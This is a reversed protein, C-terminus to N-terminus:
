LRIFRTFIKLVIVTSFFMYPIAFIKGSVSQPTIDGYGVACSTVVAFYFSDVWTMDGERANAKFFVAGVTATMLFQFLLLAYRGHVTKFFANFPDKHIIDADAAKHKKVEARERRLTEFHGEPVGEAILRPMFVHAPAPPNVDNVKTNFFDNFNKFVHTLM